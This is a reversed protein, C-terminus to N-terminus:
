CLESLREQYIDLCFEFAHKCEENKLTKSQFKKLSNGARDLIEKIVQPTNSDRDKQFIPDTASLFDKASLLMIVMDESLPTKKLELEEVIMDIALGTKAKAKDFLEQMFDGLSIAKSCYLIYGDCRLIRIKVVWRSLM